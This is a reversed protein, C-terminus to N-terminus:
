PKDWTIRECLWPWRRCAIKRTLYYAGVAWLGMTVGLAAGWRGGILAQTVALSALLATLQLLAHARLRPWDAPVYNRVFQTVGVTIAWTLLAAPLWAPATDFVQVLLNWAKGILDIM